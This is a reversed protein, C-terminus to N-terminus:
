SVFDVISVSSFPTFYIWLKKVKSCIGCRKRTNRNCVHFFYINAPFTIICSTEEITRTQSHNKSFFKTFYLMLLCSLGSATKTQFIRFYEWACTALFHCGTLIKLYKTGDTQEIYPLVQLMQKTLAIDTKWIWTMSM